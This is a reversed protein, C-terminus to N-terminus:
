SAAEVEFPRVTNSKRLDPRTYWALRINTGHMFFFIMQRNRMVGLGCNTLKEFRWILKDTWRLALDAQWNRTMVGLWNTLESDYRWTLKDTGLWLALDTQWNRTMVGLWNTLEDYRWTLKDTGLWLALDTQWNTMVCLSAFRSRWVPPFLASWTVRLPQNVTSSHLAPRRTWFTQKLWPVTCACSRAAPSAHCAASWGDMARTKVVSRLKQRTNATDGSAFTEPVTINSCSTRDTAITFWLEQKKSRYRQDSRWAPVRSVPPICSSRVAM